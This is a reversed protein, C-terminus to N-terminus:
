TTLPPSYTLPHSQDTDLVTAFYLHVIISERASFTFLDYQLAPPNQESIAENKTRPRSVLETGGGETRGLYPHYIYYDQVNFTSPHLKTFSCAHMSIYGDGEVFDCFDSPLQRRAITLHVQEYDGATSRVHIIEKQEFYEPLGGMVWNVTIFQSRDNGDHKLVGSTESLSIDPHSPEATWHIDTGGRNFIEFQTLEPGWVDMSPLVYGPLLDGTSPHTCDSEENTLSPRVGEHGEVWIGINGVIPNSDQRTHVFSLGTILDRSPAHWTDGYGYHPQRMIHNWKRGLMSHYDESLRFDEDFLSLVKQAM